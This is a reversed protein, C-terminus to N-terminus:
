QDAEYRKMAPYNYPTILSRPKTPEKETKPKREPMHPPWYEQLLAWLYKDAKLKEEKYDTNNAIRRITSPSRNMMEAVDKIAHGKKLMYQIAKREEDSVKDGNSM